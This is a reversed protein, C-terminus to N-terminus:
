FARETADYPQCKGSFNGVNGNINVSGSMRDIRIDPKDMFSLYVKGKIQDNGIKLNTMRFWGDKGGRIVPLMQRPMEVQGEGNAIKVKLQDNFNVTQQETITASGNQGSNNQAQYTTDVQQTITGSGECLLSLELVDQASAASPIAIASVALLSSCVKM